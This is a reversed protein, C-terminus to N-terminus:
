CCCGGPFFLTSHLLLRLVLSGRGVSFVLGSHSLSAPSYKSGEYLCPLVLLVISFMTKIAKECAIIIGVQLDYAIRNKPHCHPQCGGEGKGDSGSCQRHQWHQSGMPQTQYFVGVGREFRYNEPHNVRVISPWAAPDVRPFSCWRCRSVAAEGSEPSGASSDCFYSSIMRSYCNPSLGKQFEAM